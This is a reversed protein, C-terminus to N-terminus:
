FGMDMDGSDDEKGKPKVAQETGEVQADKFMEDLKDINIM